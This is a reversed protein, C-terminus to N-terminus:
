YRLVIRRIVLEEYGQKFGNIRIIFNGDIIYLKRM